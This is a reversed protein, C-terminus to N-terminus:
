HISNLEALHVHRSISQIVSHGQIKGHSFFFTGLRHVCQLRLLPLSPERPGASGRHTGWVLLTGSHVRAECVQLSSLWGQRDEAMQQGFLARQRCCEGQVNKAAGRPPADGSKPPDWMQSEDLGIESVAASHVAQWPCLPCGTGSPLPTPGTGKPQLAPWAQRPAVVSAWVEGVQGQSNFGCM